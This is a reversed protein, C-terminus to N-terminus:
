RECVDGQILGSGSGLRLKLMITALDSRAHALALVYESSQWYWPRCHCGFGSHAIRLVLWGAVWRALEGVVSVIISPLSQYKVLFAM